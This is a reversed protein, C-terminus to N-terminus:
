EYYGIIEKCHGDCFCGDVSQCGRYIPIKKDQQEKTLNKKSNFYDLIMLKNNEKEAPCEKCDRVLNGHHCKLYKIEM